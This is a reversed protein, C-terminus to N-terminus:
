AAAGPAGLTLHAAEGAVGLPQLGERGGGAPAAGPVYNVAQAAQGIPVTAIVRNTLTDIAAM